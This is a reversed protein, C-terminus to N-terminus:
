YQGGNINQEELNLTAEFNETVNNYVLVSGLQKGSTDIGVINDINPGTQLIRRIPTGVSVRSVTPRRGTTVVVRRNVSM